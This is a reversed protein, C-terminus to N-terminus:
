DVPDVVLPGAAPNGAFDAAGTLTVTDAAGLPGDLSVRFRGGGLRSVGLVSQGGSASWSSTQDASPGLDGDVGVIVMSGTASSRLDLFGTLASPGTGDGGVTAGFPAPVGANGSTDVVGTVTVSASAGFPLHVGRALRLTVTSTSSAYSLSAGTLDVAAGGATISYSSPDLAGAPDVLESFTVTAMDDGDGPVAVATFGAVSPGSSDAATVAVNATAAASNGARDTQGNATVTLVESVLPATDLTVRVTRPGVSVASVVTRGPLSYNATAVMQNTDMAESFTVVVAEAVTPDLTASQVSAPTSDGGAVINSEQSTGGVRVGQSSLLSAVALIYTEGQQVNHDLDGNLAFTVTDTGNWSREAGGMDVFFGLLLGYNFDEFLGFPHMPRDFQVTVIDNNEGEVATLTTSGTFLAPEVADRAVVPFFDVPEILNGALDALGFATAMDGAGPAVPFTVEVGLGGLIVTSETALFHNGPGIAPRFGFRTGSTPSSVLLDATEVYKVPEDFLLRLTSAGDGPAASVLTPPTVDGTVVSVVASTGFATTRVVNGGIDRMTNFVASVTAGTELSESARVTLAATRNAADYTVTAGATDVPTGLPCELAWHAPNEVEAAVMDDTFVVTVVDNNSGSVTLGSISAADPETTDTSDIAQMAAGPSVEGATDRIGPAVTLVRDGPVVVSDVSVRVTSGTLQTAATVIAGTVSYFATTEADAQLIDRDFAVELTRGAPDFTRDQTAGTVLAGLAPPDGGDGSDGSSGSCGAAFALTLAAASRVLIPTRSSTTYRRLLM